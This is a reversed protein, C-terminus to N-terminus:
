TSRKGEAALSVSIQARREAAILCASDTWGSLPRRHQQQGICCQPAVGCSMAGIFATNQPTEAPQRSASYGGAGALKRREQSGPQTFVGVGLKRTSRKDRNRQIAFYGSQCACDFSSFLSFLEARGQSLRTKVSGPVCPRGCSGRDYIQRVRCSEFTHGKGESPLARDLQAVPANPNM